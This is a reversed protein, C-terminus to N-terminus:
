WKNTRRSWLGDRYSSYLVYAVTSFLVTACMLRGIKDILSMVRLSNVESIFASDDITKYFSLWRRVIINKGVPFHKEVISQIKEIEGLPEIQINFNGATTLIDVHICKETEVISRSSTIEKSRLEYSPYHETQVISNRYRGYGISRTITQSRQVPVQTLFSIKDLKYYVSSREGYKVTVGTVVANTTSRIYSVM